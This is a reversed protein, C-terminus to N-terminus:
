QKGKEIEKAFADKLGLLKACQVSKLMHAGDRDLPRMGNTECMDCLQDWTIGLEEVMAVVQKQDDRLEPGHQPETQAQAVPEQNAETAEALLGDAEDDFKPRSVPTVDVERYDENDIEIAAEIEPTTPLFNYLRRIATKIIMRLETQWDKSDWTSSRVKGAKFARWGNSKDRIAYVEEIDMVISVTDGSKLRAMAYVAYVEGKDELRSEPDRLFWPIHNKVEGTSYEFLDGRRVVDAHVQSVKNSGIALQIMGKYDIVLTASRGFPIIHAMRGDLPLGTQALRLVCEAFTGVDCELLKPNRTTATKVIRMFREATVGPPLAVGVQKRFKESTVLAQVSEM